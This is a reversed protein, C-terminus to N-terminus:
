KRELSIGACVVAHVDNNHINKYSFYAIPVATLKVNHGSILSPFQGYLYVWFVVGSGAIICFSHYDGWYYNDEIQVLNGTVEIVTPGYLEPNKSFERFKFSTTTKGKYTALSNNLFMRPNDSILKKINGPIIYQNDTLYTGTSSFYEVPTPTFLGETFTGEMYYGNEWEQRGFGDYVGDKWEGTYTWYVDQSNMTTFSGSGSPIGNFVSGSYEGTRDYDEYGDNFTLTCSDTHLNGEGSISGNEWQGEYEIYDQDTGAHFTGTGQPLGDVAEGSYSGVFTKKCYDLPFGNYTLEGVGVPKGEEWTGSYIIEEEGDSYKFTGEGSPVNKVIAGDYTGDITNGCIETSFAMDTVEKPAASGCGSLLSVVLALVCIVALTRKM